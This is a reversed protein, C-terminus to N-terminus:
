YGCYDTTLEFSGSFCGLLRAYDGLDVDNDTDGDLHLCEAGFGGDPGTLCGIFYAADTIDVHFDPDNDGFAFPIPESVQVFGSGNLVPEFTINRDWFFNMGLIGDLLEGEPSPLDLMVFPASSYRLAGGFANIQVFDVYYGPVDTLLGAVGCVDILFDPELPLNLQSAVGPSIISAQAGTDVLMRTNLIPNIPGPEGELLGVTSFYAGSGPLSGPILAFLSPSSPTTLDFVDPLFAVTFAPLLGGFEIFFAQPYEPLVEFKELIEVGPGKYTVGGVTASGPTDVRIVFNYFTMFSSGMIGTVSEGNGCDLPPPALGAVNSHGKVENLDLLGGEDVAGLGAAFFGVAQTVRAQIEGGVGGIPIEHETLRDGTLGVREAHVGAFVNGDAGSDLYGVIYNVNAPFNLPNGVYTPELEHEYPSDDFPPRKKDSATIAIRPSFGVLRPRPFPFAEGAAVAAGSRAERELPTRVAVITRTSGARISTEREVYKRENKILTRPAQAFLVGCM